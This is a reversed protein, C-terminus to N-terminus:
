PKRWEDLGQTAMAVSWTQPGVAGVWSLAAESPAVSPPRAVALPATSARAPSEDYGLIAGRLSLTRGDAPIPIDAARSVETLLDQKMRMARAYYRGFTRLIARNEKGFLLFGAVVLLIAWDIDSFLAMPGRVGGRRAAADPTSREGLPHRCWAGGFYLAIMPAAVILMTIGSNDPTVLMGFVLSGIVAARWHQRWASAQVLGLRTLTYVFVPLEFCVGFALSYLLTFEVFSEVGLVPALGMAGVYDFLLRFTLPTLYLIGLATGLAFLVTAPIGIRRLLERENQRLGSALFAGVEHVIWPMGLIVTLLAGIELQAIVSDGVGVNLLAVGQPLM